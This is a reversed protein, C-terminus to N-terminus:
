AAVAYALSVARRASRKHVRHACRAYRLFNLGAWPCRFFFEHPLLDGKISNCSACAAVVNGFDNQGGHARPLIHDLTLTFWSLARACYVCRRGCERLAGRKLSRKELPFRHRRLRRASRTLGRAGTHLPVCSHRM